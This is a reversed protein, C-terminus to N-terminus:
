NKLEEIANFIVDGDYGELRMKHYFEFKDKNADEQWAKQINQEPTLQNEEKEVIITFKNM